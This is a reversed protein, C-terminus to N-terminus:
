QVARKAAAQNVWKWANLEIQRVRERTVGLLRGTEELTAPVGASRPDLGSRLLLVEVERKNGHSLFQRVAEQELTQDVWDPEQALGEAFMSIDETPHFLLTAWHRVQPDIDEVVDSERGLGGRRADDGFALEQFVETLAELNRDWVHTPVSIPWWLERIGRTVTQHCWRRAYVVLRSGKDPDFLEIARMLGQFAWSFLDDIPVCAEPYQRFRRIATEVPVYIHTYVLRDRALINGHRAMTLWAMEEDRTPRSLDGLSEVLDGLAVSYRRIQSPTHRSRDQPRGFHEYKGAFFDAWSAQDGWSFYGLRSPSLEVSTAALAAKLTSDGQFHCAYLEDQSRCFILVRDLARSRELHGMRRNPNQAYMLVRRVQWRLFAHDGLDLIWVSWPFKSPLRLSWLAEVALREHQALNVDRASHFFAESEVEASLLPWGLHARLIDLLRPIPNIERSEM